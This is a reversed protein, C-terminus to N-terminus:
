KEQPPIGRFRILRRGGAARTRILSFSTLRVREMNPSAANFFAYKSAHKCLYDFLDSVMQEDESFLRPAAGVWRTIRNGDSDELSYEISFIPRAAM